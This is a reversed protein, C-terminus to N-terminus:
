RLGAHCVAPSVGVGTEIGDAGLAVGVIQGVEAHRLTGEAVEAGVAGVLAHGDTGGGEVFVAM